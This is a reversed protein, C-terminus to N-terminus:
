GDHPPVLEELIAAVGTLSARRLKSPSRWSLIRRQSREPHFQDNAHTRGPESNDADITGSRAHAFTKPDDGFHSAHAAALAAAQLPTLNGSFLEDSMALLQAFGTAARVTCPRSLRRGEIEIVWSQGQNGHRM